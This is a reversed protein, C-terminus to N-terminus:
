LNGFARGTTEQLFIQSFAGYKSWSGVEIVFGVGQRFGGANCEFIGLYM